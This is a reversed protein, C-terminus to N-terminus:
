EDWGWKKFYEDIPFIGNYGYGRMKLILKECEALRQKLKAQFGFAADVDKTRRELESQLKENDKELDALRSQLKYNQEDLWNYHSAEQSADNLESAGGNRREWILKAREFVDVRKQLIANEKQLEVFASHEIVHIYNGTLISSETFTGAIRFEQGTETKLHSDALFYERAKSQPNM